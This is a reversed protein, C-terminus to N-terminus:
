KPEIRLSQVQEVTLNTANSILEDNSGLLILRKAIEVKEEQKAYQETKAL